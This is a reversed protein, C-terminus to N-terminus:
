DLNNGWNKHLIVTSYADQYCEQAHVTTKGRRLTLMDWMCVLTCCPVTETLSFVHNCHVIRPEDVQQLEQERVDAAQLQNICASIKMDSAHRVTDGQKQLESFSWAPSFASYQLVTSECNQM